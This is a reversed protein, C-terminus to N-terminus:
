DKRCVTYPIYPMTVDVTVAGTSAVSGSIAHTHAGGSQTAITDNPTTITYVGTIGAVAANALSDIEHTHAGDSTIALTGFAHVHAAVTNITREENDVTFATGEVGGAGILGGAVKGLIVRGRAAIVETYGTPCAAGDFFIITGPWVANHYNNVQTIDHHPGVGEGSVDGHVPLMARRDTLTIVGGTTISVNALPIVWATGPDQLAGGISPIGAGETGAVLVIRVTQLVWDKKLVIVDVRPNGAPTAIAVNVAADNEYWTGYVLARGTAVIAPSVAGPATVLLEGLEEGRWVGGLDTAVQQASALSRLVQAFETAADYPAVTAADGVSSGDWFRSIETM